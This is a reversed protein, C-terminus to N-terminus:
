IGRYGRPAVLKDDIIAIQSNGIIVTTLMDIDQNKLKQLTPVKVIKEREAIEVSAKCRQVDGKMPNLVGEREGLLYKILDIYLNYIFIIGRELYSGQGSLLINEM